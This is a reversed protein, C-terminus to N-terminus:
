GSPKHLVAAAALATDGSLWSKALPDSGGAVIREMEAIAPARLQRKVEAYARSPMEGLQLAVAIARELVADPPVVEDLLGAELAAPPDLLEARLTLVRAAPPTLESRVAIM